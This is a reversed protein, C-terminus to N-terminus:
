PPPASSRRASTAPGMQVHAAQAPEEQEGVPIDLTVTTGTEPSSELTMRGKLAAITGYVVALGMGAASALGKTTYFPECARARTQEDMGTGTDAIRLRLYQGPSLEPPRLPDAAALTVGTTKLSLTGVEGMAELANRSLHRLVRGLQQANATVPPLGETLDMAVTVGHPWALEGSRETAIESRVLANIDVPGATPLLTVGQQTFALLDEVIIRGRQAAQMISQMEQYLPDTAELEELLSSSILMSVSLINNLNHAVGGSLTAVAELRESQQQRKELAVLRTVDQLFVLLTSQRGPHEVLARHLALTRYGSATLLRCHDAQTADVENTNAIIQLQEDSLEEGQSLGLMRRAPANIHQLRQSADLVAIGDPSHVFLDALLEQASPELFRHRTTATLMGVSFLALTAPTLEPMSSTDIVMPLILDTVAGISVAIGITIVLTQALRRRRPDTTQRRERLLLGSAVTTPFLVNALGMLGFLPGHSELIGEPGLTFGSYVGKTFLVVPLSFLAIARSGWLLRDTKRDCLTYIFDLFLTGTVIWFVPEIRLLLRSTAPSQPIRFLIDMLTWGAIALSLLLFSRNVRTRRWHAAGLAVVFFAVLFSLVSVLAPWFM